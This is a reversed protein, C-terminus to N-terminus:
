LLRKSKLYREFKQKDYRGGKSSNDSGAMPRLNELANIVAPDIINYDLFAKIPFIHDIHWVNQILVEWNEFSSLRSTLETYGYGLIDFSKTTKRQGTQNLVNHIMGHYRNRLSDRMKKAERDPLWNPHNEGVNKEVFCQKCRQGKQWNDLSIHNEHGKTCKFHLPEKNNIYTESILEFGDKELISKVESIDRRRTNATRTYKCSGCRRGMQFHGFGTSGKQGCSCIYDLNERTSIYVDSILVCGQEEFYQKVSDIDHKKNEASSKKSKCLQCRQGERFNSYRIQSENGCVCIYKMPVKYGLYEKELLKCDNEKFYEVSSEYTHKIM